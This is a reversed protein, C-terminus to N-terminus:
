LYLPLQLMQLAALHLAIMDQLHSLLASANEATAPFFPQHELPLQKSSELGSSYPSLYAKKGPCDLVVMEEIKVAFVFTALCALM